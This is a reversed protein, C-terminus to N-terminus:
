DTLRSLRIAPTDRAELGHGGSHLRGQSEKAREVGQGPGATGALQAKEKTETDVPWTFFTLFDERAHGTYHEYQFPMSEFVRSDESEVYWYIPVLGGEYRRSRIRGVWLRMLDSASMTEASFDESIPDLVLEWSARLDTKWQEGSRRGEFEWIRANAGEPM